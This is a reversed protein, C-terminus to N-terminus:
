RVAEAGQFLGLEDCEGQRASQDGGSPRRTFTDPRAYSAFTLAGEVQHSSSSHM